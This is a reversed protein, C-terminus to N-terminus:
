EEDLDSLQEDIFEFFPSPASLEWTEHDWDVTQPQSNGRRHFCQANGVGDPLFELLDAYRYDDPTHGLEKCIPDMMEAMVVIQRSNLVPGFGDHIAYLARLDAPLEWQYKALNANVTPTVVPPGGTYVHYYRRGDHLTMNLLFHLSWVDDRKEAYIHACREKMVRILNPIRDAIAQFNTDIAETLGKGNLQSWPSEAPLRGLPYYNQSNSSEFVLQVGAFGYQDILTRELDTTRIWEPDFELDPDRQLERRYAARLEETLESAADM